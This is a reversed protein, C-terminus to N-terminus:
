LVKPNIVYVLDHKDNEIVLNGNDLIDIIIFPLKEMLVDPWPNYYVTDGVKYM